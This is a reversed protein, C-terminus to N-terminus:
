SSIILISNECSVDNFVHYGEPLDKLQEGVEEEARAGREADKMRKKTYPGIRTLSEVIGVFVVTLAVVVPLGLKSIIAMNQIWLVILVALVGTYLLVRLHGRLAMKWTGEGAIGFWDAVHDELGLGNM